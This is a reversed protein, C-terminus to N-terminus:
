LMGATGATGAARGTAKGYGRWRDVTRDGKEKHIDSEDRRAGYRRDTLGLRNDFQKQQWANANRANFEAMADRAGARDAQMGYEDREISGALQGSESLAALARRRADAAAQTGAMSMRDAGAQQAQLKAGAAMNSGMMGRSQANAMIAGRASAEQQGAQHRGEALAARSEADMGGELGVQQLKELASMRAARLRPDVAIGDFSTGQLREMEGPLQIGDYLRAAEKRIREAEAYDGRALAEGILSGIIDGIGEGTNGGVNLADMDM